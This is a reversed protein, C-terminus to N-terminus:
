GNTEMGDKVYRVRKKVMRVGVFVRPSPEDGKYKRVPDNKCPPM